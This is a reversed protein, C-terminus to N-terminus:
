VHLEEGIGTFLSSLWGAMFGQRWGRRLLYKNSFRKGCDPEDYLDMLTLNSHHNREYEDRYIKREFGRNYFSCRFVMRVLPNQRSSSPDHPEFAFATAKSSLPQVTDPSTMELQM